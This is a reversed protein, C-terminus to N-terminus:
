RAPQPRKACHQDLFRLVDDAWLSVGRYAFTHGEQASKGFAPYIKVRFPKGADNMVASLTRTPSLDFDNEPQIFFIPARANRVARSMLAQLQPARAWSEAGGSLDVAACYGGREAGLLTEIGGFSNGMVAIHAPSVDNRKRLWALGALQDSLHDTELLRVMTAAAASIGGTKGAATIEDRIYAGASSSLGQGRRHPMFFLWGRSAFAPGIVETAASNDRASGHNYLVARFPGAGNPKYVIGHLAVGGNPFSVVEAGALLGGFWLCLSVSRLFPVSV